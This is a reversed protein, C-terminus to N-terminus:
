MPGNMTRQRSGASSWTPTELEVIIGNYNESRSSLEVDKFEPKNLKSRKYGPIKVFVTGCNQSEGASISNEEVTAGSDQPRQSEM